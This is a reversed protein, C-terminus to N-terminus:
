YGSSVNSANYVTDGLNLKSKIEFYTGAAHTATDENKGIRIKEESPFVFLEGAKLDPSSTNNQSNKRKFQIVKM